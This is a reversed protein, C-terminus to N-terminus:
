KIRNLATKNFGVIIKDGAIIVPVGGRWNIGAEKTKQAVEEWSQRNVGIDTNVFDIGKSKLLNAAKTCYGCGRTTYLIVQEQREKEPRGKSDTGGKKLKALQERLNHYQKLEEETLKGRKAGAWKIRALKSYIAAQDLQGESRMKKAM